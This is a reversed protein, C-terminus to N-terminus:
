CPENLCVIIDLKGPPLRWEPRFEDTPDANQKHNRELREYNRRWIPDSLIAFVMGVFLGM